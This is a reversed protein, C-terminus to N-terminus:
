MFTDLLLGRISDVRKMVGIHDIESKLFERTISDLERDVKKVISYTRHRGRRDLFNQQSFEHSNKVAVDLFERVLKKYESFDKLYMHEKLKDSQVNIKDYLETLKEKVDESKIKEFKLAFESRKADKTKLLEGTRSLINLAKTNGKNITAGIQVQPNINNVQNLKNM